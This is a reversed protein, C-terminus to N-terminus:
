SSWRTDRFKTAGDTVQSLSDVDWFLLEYAGCVSKINKGDESWDIGTIFSNHGKLAGKLSYQDGHVTYIYIHNDHSGVALLDENPSYKIVQIWEKAENSRFVENKLNSAQRIALTGDNIGVALHGSKSYALARAQQNPPTLAL